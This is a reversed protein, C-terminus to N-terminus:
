LASTGHNMLRVSVSITDIHCVCTRNFASFRLDYFIDHGQVINIHFQENNYFNPATISSHIKELVSAVTAEERNLTADPLKDSEQILKAVETHRGNKVARIFEERVEANPIFVSKTAEDYALYGLHVLLTLVDQEQIYDYTYTKVWTTDMM